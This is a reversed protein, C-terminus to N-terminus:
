PRRKRPENSVGCETPRRQVLSPGTAFVEVQCRGTSVVSLCGHRRCDWCSPPRLSVGAPDNPTQCLIVIFCPLVNETIRTSSMWVRIHHLSQLLTDKIRYTCFRRCDYLSTWWPSYSCWTSHIGCQLQPVVAPSFSIHYRSSIPFIGSSPRRLVKHRHTSDIVSNAFLM